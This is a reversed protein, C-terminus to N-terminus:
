FASQSDLKLGSLAEVLDGLDCTAIARTTSPVVFWPAHKHSTRQLIERIGHHVEELVPARPLRRGSGEV